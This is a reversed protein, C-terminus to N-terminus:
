STGHWLQSLYSLLLFSLFSFNIPLFDAYQHQSFHKATSTHSPVPYDNETISSIVDFIRIHCAIHCCQKSVGAVERGDETGGPHHIALRMLPWHQWIVSIKVGSLWLGSIRDNRDVSIFSQSSRVIKDDSIKSRTKTIKQWIAKDRVTAVGRLRSAWPSTPTVLPANKHHM